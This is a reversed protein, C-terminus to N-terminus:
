LDDKPLDDVINFNRPLPPPGVPFGRAQPLSKRLEIAATASTIACILLVSAYAVLSGSIQLGQKSMRAALTTLMAILAFVVVCLGALQALAPSKKRWVRIAGAALSAAVMWVACAAIIRLIPGFDPGAPGVPEHHHRAADRIQAIMWVGYAFPVGAVLLALWRTIILSPPKPELRHM